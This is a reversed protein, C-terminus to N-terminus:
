ALDGMWICCMIDFDFAAADSDLGRWRIATSTPLTVNDGIVAGGAKSTTYNSASRGRGSSVAYDASDMASSLTFTTDGTGNDTASALNLSKEITTDYFSGKAFAKAAAQATLTVPSTGDAAVLTDAKLTSM